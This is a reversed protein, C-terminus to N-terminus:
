SAPHGFGHHHDDWEATRLGRLRFALGILLCGRIIALTGILGVVALAGAGPRSVLLLGFVISVIGSLVLLWEHEIVKRLEIAALIEFTGRVIAWFAIFMLLTVATIGPWAFVAIGAAISILGILLMQWWSRGRDDRAVSAMIATIGDILCYLGFLFILAVLTVGPWAFAMLGFAIACLGNILLVWWKRALATIM